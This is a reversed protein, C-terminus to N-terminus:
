ERGHASVSHDLDNGAKSASIIMVRPRLHPLYRRHKAGAQFRMVLQVPVPGDNAAFVEPAPLAIRM